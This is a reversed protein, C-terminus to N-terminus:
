SRENIYFADNTKELLAETLIKEINEYEWYPIRILPINNNIAYEDKQKDLMKRRNFSEEDIIKKYHFEGDYEILTVKSNIFVAFDYRLYANKDSILDNFIYENKYEFNNKKLWDM